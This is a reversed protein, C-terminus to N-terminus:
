VQHEFMFKRKNLTNLDLKRKKVINFLLETGLIHPYLVFDAGLLYLNHADKENSATVIKLADSKIINLYNLLKKNDDYNPITSIILEYNNLSLSRLFEDNAIDGFLVDFGKKQIGKVKEIDIDVVLIEKAYDKALELLRNGIRHCGCILIKKNSFFDIDLDQNNLYLNAIVKKFEFVSLYPELFDYIRINYYIMYSSIAMTIAGVLTMTVLAVNDLLNLETYAYNTIILSFESIQAVALSTLFSTKKKYGFLGMLIMVILPNGVLVFISFIITPIIALEISNIQISSGLLVFFLALFFDRLPKTWSELQLNEFRNSLAIGALLGGVEKTFGILPSSFIFAVVLAWSLSLLFLIEKQDRLSDMIKYLFFKCFFMILVTLLLMKLISFFLNSFIIHFDTSQLGKFTSVIILILIAVFDQVLLFGISIKGHLTSLQNVSSLLKLIVVTSSFTLGISIFFSQILNFGLLYCIVFGIISTFVIQGIGTILSIKGLNKLEKLNLELGLTFLLFTVGISSFLEISSNNLDFGPLLPGLIFGSLIFGLIPPQKLKHVLFALFTTFALILSFEGFTGM